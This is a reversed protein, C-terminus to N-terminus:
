EFDKPIQVKSIHLRAKLGCPNLHGTKDSWDLFGDVLFPTKRKLNSKAEGQM